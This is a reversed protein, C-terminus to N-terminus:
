NRFLFHQLFSQSNLRFKIIIIDLLNHLLIPLHHLELLFRRTIHKFIPFNHISGSIFFELNLAIRMNQIKDILFKKINYIDMKITFNGESTSTILILLLPFTYVKQKVVSSCKIEKLNRFFGKQLFSFQRMFLLFIRKFIKYFKFFFSFVKESKM